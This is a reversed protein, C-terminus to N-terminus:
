EGGSHAAVLETGIRYLETRLQSPALVEIQAGWGALQEALAVLLQARVEVVTGKTDTGLMTCNRGFQQALIPAVWNPARVTAAVGSRLAEVAAAHADWFAVLDFGDPPVFTEDTVHVDALRDVRYTRPEPATSAVVYWQGAKAVLGLPELRVDRVAGSRSTYTAEMIRRQVVADRLLDIGPAAHNVPVGWARHDYHISTSLRKAEERMSAPLARLLKRTAARTQPGALGATGLMWFLARSEDAFLGTLNTKAGGVLQWGGGRGPQVHVPIGASALAELDRRATALSVELEDALEAATVRGRSQLFLVAAILRDARM